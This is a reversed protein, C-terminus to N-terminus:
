ASIEQPAGEESPPAAQPRAVSESQPPPANREHASETDRDDKQM